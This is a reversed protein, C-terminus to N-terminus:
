KISATYTVTGTYTGAVEAAKTTTSLTFTLEKSGKNAGSAVTLVDGGSVIAASSDAITYNLKETGNAGNKIEFAGGTGSGAVSIHLVHGEALTSSTVAVSKKNVVSTKNIGKNSGFDVADHITWTFHEDVKYTLTTQQTPEDQAFAVSGALPSVLMLATAGLTFLKKKM